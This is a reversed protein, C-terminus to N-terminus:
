CMKGRTKGRQAIGDARSSVSGGKAMKVKGGSAMERPSPPKGKEKTYVGADQKDEYKKLEKATPGGQKGRGAGAGTTDLNSEAETGLYRMAKRDLFPTAVLQTEGTRMKATNFKGGSQDPLTQDVDDDITYGYINKNAM